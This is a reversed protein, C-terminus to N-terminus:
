QNLRAYTGNSPPDWNGEVHIRNLEDFDISLYITFNQYGFQVRCQADLSLLEGADSVRNIEYTGRYNSNTFADTVSFIGDDFRIIRTYGMGSEIQEWSGQIIAKGITEKM